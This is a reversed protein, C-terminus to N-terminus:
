GATGMRRWGTPDRRTVDLTRHGVGGDGRVCVAVTVWGPTVEVHLWRFGVVSQPGVRVHSELVIVGDIAVAAETDAALAAIWEVWLDKATTFLRISLADSWEPGSHHLPERSVARWDTVDAPDMAPIERRDFDECPGDLPNSM